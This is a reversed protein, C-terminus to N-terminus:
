DYFFMVYSVRVIVLIIQVGIDIAEPCNFLDNRLKEIIGILILTTNPERPYNLRLAFLSDLERAKKNVETLDNVAPLDNSSPFM